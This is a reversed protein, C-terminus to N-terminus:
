GAVEPSTRTSFLRQVEPPAQYFYSTLRNREALSALVLALVIAVLGVAPVAIATGVTGKVADPLYQLFWAMVLILSTHALYVPLTRGGVYRLINVGSLLRSFSIGSVVGLVATVFYFGPVSTNLGLGVGAVALAAWAVAVGALVRKHPNRGLEFIQKRYHIGVLFFFFYKAAGTWGVNGLDWGSLAVVCVVGAVSVQIWPPVVRILKVLVFFLSLAWIFWLEFRPALPAYFVYRYQHLFNGTAGQMILGLIFPGTAIFSWLMYVWAYLSIKDHWLKRWSVTIWKPAFMGSITFFLPMRLTALAQNTQEWAHTHFHPAALWQASHYLVVFTIAIGRGADVWQVRSGQGAM